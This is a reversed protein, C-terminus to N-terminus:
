FPQERRRPAGPHSPDPMPQEDTPSSLIVGTFRVNEVETLPSIYLKKEM